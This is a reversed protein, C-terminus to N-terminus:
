EMHTAVWAPLVDFVCDSSEPVIFRDGLVPSGETAARDRDRDSPCFSMAYSEHIVGDVEHVGREVPEEM